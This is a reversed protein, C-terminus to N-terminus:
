AGCQLTTDQFGKGRPCLTIPKGNPDTITAYGDSRLSFTFAEGEYRDLFPSSNDVESGLNKTLVIMASTDSMLSWTASWKTYYMAGETVVYHATGDPVLTVSTAHQSWEGYFAAKAPSPAATSAAPPESSPTQTTSPPKPASEPNPHIAFTSSPATTAKYADNHHSWQWIGLGTSVALAVAATAVIAPIRWSRRNATVTIPEDADDALSWAHIHQTENEREPNAAAQDAAATEDTDAM